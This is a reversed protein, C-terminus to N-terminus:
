SLRDIEAELEVVRRRLVMIEAMGAATLGSARLRVVEGIAHIDNRSSRRHNGPTREASSVGAKDLRRITQPDVGFLDAVVALSYLPEDPDDLRSQWDSRFTPAV